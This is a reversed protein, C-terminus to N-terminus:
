WKRHPTLTHVMSNIQKTFVFLLCVRVTSLGIGIINVTNFTWCGDSCSITEVVVRLENYAKLFLHWVVNGCHWVMHWMGRWTDCAVIGCWMVEWLGIYWMVVIVVSGGVAWYLLLM